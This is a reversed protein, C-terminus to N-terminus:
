EGAQQDYAWIDLGADSPVHRRRDNPWIRIRFRSLRNTQSSNGRGTSGTPM